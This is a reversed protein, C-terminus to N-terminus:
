NAGYFGRMAKFLWTPLNSQLGSSFYCAHAYVIVAVISFVVIWSFVRRVRRKKVEQPTHLTGVQGLVAVPLTRRLQNVTVFSSSSFEVLFALGAGILLGIFAGIGVFLPVSPFVPDWSDADELLPLDLTRFINGEPSNLQKWSGDLAAARRQFTQLNDNAASKTMFLQDNQRTLGPIQDVEAQLKDRLKELSEISNKAGTVQAQLKDQQLKLSSWAPNVSETKSSDVFESMQNLADRELRLQRETQAIQPYTEHFRERLGKLASEIRRIVSQQAVWQENKVRLTSSEYIRQEGDLLVKVEDLQKEFKSLNVKTTELNDITNGLYIRKDALSGLLQIDNERQFREFAAAANDARRKERRVRTLFDDLPKRIQSRRRNNIAKVYKDRVDNVFSAVKRANRGQYSINIVDPGDKQTVLGVKLRTLIHNFLRTKERPNNVDYGEQIENKEVLDELFGRRLIVQKITTLMPKVPVVIDVNSYASEFAASDQVVMTTHATFQAPLLFAWAAAVGLVILFPIVILWARRSFVSLYDGIGINQGQGQQQLEPDM